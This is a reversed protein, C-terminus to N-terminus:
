DGGGEDKRDSVYTVKGAAIWIQILRGRRRYTWQEPAEAEGTEEKAVSDPAGAVERVREVTDGRSVMRSGFRASQASLPLSVLLGLLLVWHKM